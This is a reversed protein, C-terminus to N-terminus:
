SKQSQEMKKTEQVQEPKPPEPTQSPKPQQQQQESEKAAQNAKWRQVKKGFYGLGHFAFCVIDATYAVAAIVNAGPIALGFLPAAAAVLGGLDTVCHGVDLIKQALGANPDKLTKWAKYLDLAFVGARVGPYLGQLALNRVPEPAAQTLSNKVTEVGERFTFAPDTEIMEHAEMMTAKGMRGVGDAFRDWNSRGEKVVEAVADKGVRLTVKEGVQLNQGLGAMAQTLAVTDMPKVEETSQDVAAVKVTNATIKLDGHRQATVPDMTGGRIMDM